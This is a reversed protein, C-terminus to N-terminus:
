VCERVEVTPECCCGLGPVGVYVMGGWRLDSAVASQEACWGAGGFEERLKVCAEM